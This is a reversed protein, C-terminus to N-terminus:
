TTTMEGPRCVGSRCCRALRCNFGHALMLLLGGLPTGLGTLGRLAIRELISDAQEPQSKAPVCCALLCEEADDAARSKVPVAGCCADPAAFAMSCLLLLGAGGLLPPIMRRHRLYGPLFSLVGIGVAGCAAWRHFGGEALWELGALPLWAIVLPMAICHVVCLLSLAAGLVDWSRSVTSNTTTFAM